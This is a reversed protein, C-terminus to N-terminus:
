WEHFEVSVLSCYQKDGSKDARNYSGDNWDEPPYKQRKDAQRPKYQSDEAYDIGRIPCELLQRYNTLKRNNFLAPLCCPISGTLERGM